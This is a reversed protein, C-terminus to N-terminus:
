RRGRYSRLGKQLYIRKRPKTKFRDYKRRNVINIITSPPDAFTNTPHAPTIREVLLSEPYYWKGHWEKNICIQIYANDNTHLDFIIFESKLFRGSSPVFRIMLTGHELLYPLYYFHLMKEKMKNLKVGLGRIHARNLQGERINNWGGMSKYQKLRDWNMRRQPNVTKEIAILHCFKELDFKVKIIEGSDLEFEYIYPYLDKSYLESLVPLDIDAFNPRSTLGKLGILDLM